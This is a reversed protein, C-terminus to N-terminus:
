NDGSQGGSAQMHGTLRLNMHPHWSSIRKRQSLRGQEVRIGASVSCSFAPKARHTQEAVAFLGLSNHEWFMPDLVRSEPALGGPQLPVVPEDGLWRSNRHFWLSPKTVTPGAKARNRLM